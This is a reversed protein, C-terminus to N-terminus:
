VINNYIIDELFNNESPKNCCISIRNDCIHQSMNVTVYIWYCLSICNDCICQSMCGYGIVINCKGILEEPKHFNDRKTRSKTLQTYIIFRLNLALWYWPHCVDSALSTVVISDAFLLAFWFNVCPTRTTAWHYCIQSTDMLVCTGHRSESLPDLM